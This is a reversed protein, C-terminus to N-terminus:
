GLPGQQLENRLQDLLWFFDARTMCFFELFRVVPTRNDEWPEWREPREFPICIARTYVLPNAEQEHSRKWHLYAACSLLANYPPRPM